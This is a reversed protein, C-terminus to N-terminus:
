QVTSILQATVTSPAEKIAVSWSREGGPIPCANRLIYGARYHVRRPM